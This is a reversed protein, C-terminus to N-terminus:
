AGSLIELLLANPKNNSPFFEGKQLHVAKGAPVLNGKPSLMGELNRNILYWEGNQHSIYAKMARDQVKEDPFTNALFHWIFLPMQDYLNIEGSSQWHGRWGSVPKMLRLHMVDKQPIEQGCYPCVPNKINYLVFWGEPCQPNSCPQLLDWTKVLAREWANATPREQPNHLGDVFAKLFLKELHPGLDHITIKLDEPRNSKDTPNEIFLAEPGFSLFDDEEVIPSHFKPGMLPHRKFIYEYILVPLAFLDTKVNPLKRKPDEFDLNITELVEPAIYGKTGAVEPPFLNPVVLTDIDIIVCSGSQPDILVNNSSLDSHALGAAHLRRVARALAISICLMKQLNGKEFDSLYKSVTSTFWKSKKDKGQLNLNFGAKVSDSGFFFKKPYAPCVVGFEPSKVLAMPWCFLKDFYEVTQQNGGLAGGDQPLLTPNYIGVIKELRERVKPSEADEKSNFFQVVKSKDPTFYTYKMLGKPPNDTIVYEIETEDMLIARAIKNTM